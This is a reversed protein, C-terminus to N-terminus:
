NRKRPKRPPKPPPEVSAPKPERWVPRPPSTLTLSLGVNSRRPVGFASPQELAADLDAIMHQLTKARDSLGKLEDAYKARQLIKDHWHSPKPRQGYPPPTEPILSTRLVLLDITLTLGVPWCNGLTRMTFPFVVGGPGDVRGALPAVADMAMGWDDTDFLGQEERHAAAVGINAQGALVSDGAPVSTLAFGSADHWDGNHMVPPFGGWDFSMGSWHVWLNAPLNPTRVPIEILWGAVTKPDPTWINMGM